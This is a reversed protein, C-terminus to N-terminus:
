NNNSNKNRKKTKFRYYINILKTRETIIYFIIVAIRRVKFFLYQSSSLYEKVIKKTEKYAEKKDSGLGGTTFKVILRDTYRIKYNSSFIKYFLDVDGAIKYKTNFKNSKLLVYRKIFVAQHNVASITKIKNERPLKLTPYICKFKKNNILARGCLVDVQNYFKNVIDRIVYKDHLQDDANLFLLIEGHSHDIGKNMGDYIGKDPESLWFSIGQNYKKIIQLTGDTSEGDIVIYEINKYTQKLVSNITMELTNKANFVTTVITILPQYSSQSNQDTSNKKFRSVSM